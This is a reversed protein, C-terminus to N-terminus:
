SNEKMKALLKSFDRDALCADKVMSGNQYVCIIPKNFRNMYQVRIKNENNDLFALALDNSEIGIATIYLKMRLSKEYFAGIIKLTEKTKSDLVVQGWKKKYEKSNGSNKKSVITVEMNATTHHAIANTSMMFSSVLGLLLFKRM